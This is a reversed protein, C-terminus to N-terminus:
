VRDLTTELYKLVAAVVPFSGFVLIVEDENAARTAADYALSVKGYTEGSLGCSSSLRQRMEDGSAAREDDLDCLHWKAVLPTLVRFIQEIDKDGYMGTVAQVSSIGQDHLKQCLYEAAGPNHAVDLITKRSRKESRKELMPLVQFRGDLRAKSMAQDVLKQTLKFGAALTGCVAAVASPLPLQLNSLRFQHDGVTLLEDEVSFGQGLSQIEIGLERAASFVSDPPAPDVCIGPRGARLIGAKERGISERNDGLWQQHDVDIRTIICVEPDVINMADLRGGLGIEIIAVDLHKRNFIDLAALAGFEFYTLSIKNRSHEIREFADCIEQDAVQKGDVIIQENYKLLFPSTTKGYSLGLAHCLQALFECTSGKGNTGAVLFVTTAPKIVGMREGVEGVRELGLDWKVPHLQRIKNLWLDLTM